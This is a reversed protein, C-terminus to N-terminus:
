EEEEEEDNDEEDGGDDWSIDPVELSRILPGM